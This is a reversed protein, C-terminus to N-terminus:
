DDIGLSPPGYRYIVPTQSFKIPNAITKSISGDRSDRITVIPNLELREALHIAQEINNIPGAPVGVKNFAAVWEDASKTVLISTMLTNLEARNSVRSPNTSFKPDTAFPAGIVSCLKAFQGDNGVAIIIQKDKTKYAEYPTISPHANGMSNPVVGAGSFAGTQNVMGSLISSLLNIEIKQGHGTENRSVVAATIGLAAHLGAVVDILAVGVKTPHESDSGTISMLGSMAQVLLDYGPLLKGEESSGFGSISCYILHPFEDKLREYGLGFKEMVGVGFNEVLVDSESIITLAKARGAETSLDATVGEKNRNVSQFYTSRGQSDFPPGWSRTDDGVVPREIKIVHAGMDGLLMTAYPGALVRSFDAVRVGRLAGV